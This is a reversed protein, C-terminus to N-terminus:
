QTLRVDEAIFGGGNMQGSVSIRDGRRFSRAATSRGYAGLDINMTRGNDAQMVLMNNRRDVSVVTGNLSNFRNNGNNNYGDRNRDRGNNYNGNNNRGYGNNSRALLEIAKVRADRGDGERSYVAMRVTDGPLLMAAGYRRGQYNSTLTAPVLLDMGNTLRVHEGGNRDHQVSAVTGEVVRNAYGRNAARQYTGPYQGPYQSQAFASSGLLLSFAGALAVKHALVKTSFM